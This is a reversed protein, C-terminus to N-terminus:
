GEINNNRIKVGRLQIVEDLKICASVHVNSAMKPVTSDNFPNLHEHKFGGCTKTHCKHKFSRFRLYSSIIVVSNADSSLLLLPFSRSSVPSSVIFSCPTIPLWLSSGLTLNAKLNVLKGHVIRYFM